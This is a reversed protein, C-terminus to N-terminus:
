FVWKASVSVNRGPQTYRDLGAFDASRGRVDEWIWYKKDTLNFLGARLTLQEVPKYYATLDFIGYGKSAFDSKDSIESKKKGQVVTWIAEGGWIESPADYSLGIVGKLPAVSDLPKDTENNEGDAWAASVRMSTGEPANIAEDLWLQGRFEIGKIRAKAINKNQTANKSQDVVESGIFNKYKNYFGTVEFSGLRNNGRIGLEFSNSEEPKLNPNARHEYGHGVRTYYMERFGPAKFGQSFQAFLSLNQNLKYVSGLRGTVKSDSADKVQAPSGPQVDPEYKFHDYRLGPTVTLKDNVQIDDQVFLGYNVVDITPIYSSKTVSGNDLNNSTNTNEAKTKSANLGYIVYNDLGALALQKDFQANFQVTKESYNYEQLRNPFPVKGGPGFDATYAPMRTNMETESKQWDLQWRAQDFLALDAEWEHFMGIRFRKKEDKGTVGEPQKMSMVKADTKANQYEGTLGVRHADNLQYQVKALINDLGTDLPDAEGRGEGYIDAGGYTETEKHDRRTYILLTELDGTRNALSLTETFGKDASAYGAKVSAHTDDGSKRLLDAPDKTQFAVMGGLADSGYLSSAPGKIIEVAKLTEIDVFNRKSTLYDGGPNFAKSQDVGDIMIKVRNEGMGRINFGSLGSRGGSGVSVGPEYRVLDKIDNVVDKEMQESDIVTVTGAIDQQSKEVRSATVTVQNLLTPQNKPSSDDAQALAASVAMVAIALRSRSFM